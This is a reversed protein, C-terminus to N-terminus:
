GNKGGQLGLINSIEKRYAEVVLRREFEKVMKARGLLGMEKRQENTLSLFEEIRAALAGADREPFLFGTTGDDVTERTGFRDTTILPRGSAASELLVNSIGEAYYTPHITCHSFRHFARVDSQVGHYQILGREEHEKLIGEYNEECFGVVHFNVNERRKKIEAAAELYQDIGKEKMIRSLYLFNIEEDGPYEQLTFYGTNVGSGPILQFRDQRKLIANVKELGERNQYFICSSHKLGLKYLTRIVAKIPAPMNEASGLGTVNSLYPVQYGACAIGGYLNPKITYTLALDPKIERLLKRFYLLLRFDAIPNIGRRDIPSDIMHCGMRSFDEANRGLIASISVDCGSDLIAQVVERRMSYLDYTVNSLILVKKKL